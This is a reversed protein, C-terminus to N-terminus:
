SRLSISKVQINKKGVLEKGEGSDALKHFVFFLAREENREQKGEEVTATNRLYVRLVHSQRQLSAQNPNNAFLLKM